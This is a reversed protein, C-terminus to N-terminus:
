LWYVLKQRYKRDCIIALLVGVVTLSLVVSLSHFNYGVGMLPDRVINFYHTLPNYDALFARDALLEPYWMIPTALFLLSVMANILPPVDRFRAALYGLSLCFCYLNLMLLIMGPIVLVVQWTLSVGVFWAVFVFVLINHLFILFQRSVLRLFMLSPNIQMNQILYKYSTFFVVGETLVGSIMYWFIIGLTVYPFYSSMDLGFLSGYILGFCGIMLATNMTLWLPGFLTRRYRSKVDFYGLKMWIIAKHM